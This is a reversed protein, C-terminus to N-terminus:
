EATGERLWDLGDDARRITRGIMMALTTKVGSSVVDVSVLTTVLMMTKLPM